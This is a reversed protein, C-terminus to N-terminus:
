VQPLNHIYKSGGTEEQSAGSVNKIVTLRGAEYEEYEAEM